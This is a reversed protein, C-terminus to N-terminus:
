FPTSRSSWPSSRSTIRVRSIIGYFSYVYLNSYGFAMVLFLLAQAVSLGVLFGRISCLNYLNGGLSRFVFLFVSAVSLVNSIYRDDPFM